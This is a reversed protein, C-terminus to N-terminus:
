HGYANEPIDKTMEPFDGTTAIYRLYKSMEHLLPYPTEYEDGQWEIMISYVLPHEGYIVGIDNTYNFEEGFYLGNKHFYSGKPMNKTAYENYTCEELAQVFVEYDPNRMAADCLHKVSNALQLPTYYNEYVFPRNFVQGMSKYYYERGATAFIKRALMNVGINDSYKGIYEVLTRVQYADGKKGYVQIVSSGPEDDWEPIYYVYDDLSLRGESALDLVITTIGLKRTSAAYFDANANYSFVKGTRMDEIYIGIRRVSPSISLLYKYNKLTNMSLYDINFFHKTEDPLDLHVMWRGIDTRRMSPKSDAIESTSALDTSETASDTSETAPDTSETAPDTEDFVTSTNSESTSEAIAASTPLSGVPDTASPTISQAPSSDQHEEFHSGDEHARFLSGLAYASYATFMALFIIFFLLRHITREGM